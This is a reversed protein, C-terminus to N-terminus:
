LLLMSLTVRYRAPNATPHTDTQLYIM